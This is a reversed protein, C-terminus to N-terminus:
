GTPVDFDHGSLLEVLLDFLGEGAETRQLSDGLFEAVCQDACSEQGVIVKRYDLGVGQHFHAIQGLFLHVQDDPLRFCLRLFDLLGGGFLTAALALM